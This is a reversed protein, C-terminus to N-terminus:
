KHLLEHPRTSPINPEVASHSMTLRAGASFLFRPNNKNEEMLPIIPLEKRVSAPKSGDPQGELSLPKQEIQVFVVDRADKTCGQIQTIAFFLGEM